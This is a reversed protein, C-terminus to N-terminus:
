GLWLRYPELKILRGVPKPSEKPDPIVRVGDMEERDDAGTLRTGDPAVVTLEFCCEGATDCFDGSGGDAPTTGSPSREKSLRKGEMSVRLLSAVRLGGSFSMEGTTEGGEEESLALVVGPLVVM